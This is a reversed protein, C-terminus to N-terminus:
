HRESYINFVANYVSYFRYTHSMNFSMAQLLLLWTAAVSLQIATDLLSAKSIPVSHTSLLSHFCPQHGLQLMTILNVIQPPTTYLPYWTLFISFKPGGQIETMEFFYYLLQHYFSLHSVNSYHITALLTARHFHFCLHATNPTAKSFQTSEIYQFFDQLLSHTYVPLWTKQSFPGCYFLVDLSM